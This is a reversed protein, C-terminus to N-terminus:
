DNGEDEGGKESDGSETNMIKKDLTSKRNWILVSMSTARDIKPHLKYESM